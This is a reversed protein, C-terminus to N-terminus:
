LSSKRLSRLWSRVALVFVFIKRILDQMDLPHPALWRASVQESAISEDGRDRM